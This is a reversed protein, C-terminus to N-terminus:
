KQQQILNIKNINEETIKLNADIEKLLDGLGRDPGNVNLFDQCGRRVDSFLSQASTFGELAKGYNKKNFQEAAENFKLTGRSYVDYLMAKNINRETGQILENIKDLRKTVREQGPNLVLFNECATRASKFSSISEMYKAAAQGYSQANFLDVGKNKLRMGEQIFIVAETDVIIGRLNNYNDTITKNLSIIQNDEPYDNRLSLSQDKAISFKELAQRYPALSETYRQKNYFDNGRTELELGANFIDVISNYRATKNPGVQAVVTSMLSSYISTLNVM